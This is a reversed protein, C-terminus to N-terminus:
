GCKETETTLKKPHTLSLGSPVDAVLQGITGTGSSLHHTHLLRHYSFQCPSSFYESFVQGLAVKDVVFGVHSSRPEFRDAATPLRRSVAQAIASGDPDRHNVCCGLTFRLLGCLYAQLLGLSKRETKREKCMITWLDWGMSVEEKGVLAATSRKNGASIIHKIFCKADALM